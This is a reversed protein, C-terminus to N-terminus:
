ILEILSKKVKQVFIQLTKSNRTEVPVTMYKKICHLQFNNHYFRSMAKPLSPLNKCRTNYHHTKKLTTDKSDTWLLKHVNKPLLGHQLKYGLKVNELYIMEKLTLIRETKLNVVSPQLGTCLTFCHDLIRQVKKHTAEDISNGWFLLGYNIHSLIHAHYIQKKTYKDMFKNTQKLINDTQDTLHNYAKEM